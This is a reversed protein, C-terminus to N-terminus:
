PEREREQGLHQTATCLMYVTHNEREQGPTTHSHVGYISYLEREREREQGLHQTAICVMYVTHSERKAWTNHPQACWIYQIARERERPGPTTHSHVGYISYPERERPGPTTHSHVGYISYPERERKAWTNHPQACWIYQIARERERPGPTTHSHMGYISYPERERKAWTNHPQACWIYQVSLCKRHNIKEKSPLFCRPIFNLIKKIKPRSDNQCAYVWWM